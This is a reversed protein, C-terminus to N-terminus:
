RIGGHASALALAADRQWIRAQDWSRTLTATGHLAGPYRHHTVPVGALALREAYSEGETRLVDYEATM